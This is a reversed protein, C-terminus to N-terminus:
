CTLTLPQEESVTFGAPVNQGFLADTTASPMLYSIMTYRVCSEAGTGAIPGGKEINAHGDVKMAVVQHTTKSVYVHTRTPANTWLLDYVQEGSDTAEGLYWLIGANLYTNGLYFLKPLATDNLGVGPDSPILPLWSFTQTSQDLHLLRQGSAIDMYPLPGDAGLGYQTRVQCPDATSACPAIWTDERWATDGNPTLAVATYHAVMDQPQVPVISASRNGPAAPMVKYPADMSLSILRLMAQGVAAQSGSTQATVDLALDVGARRQQIAMNKPAAIVRVSRWPAGGIQWSVETSSAIDTYEPLGIRTPAEHLHIMQASGSMSWYIDLVHEDIDADHPGILVNSLTAGDPLYTPLIPKFSLQPAIANVTRRTDALTVNGPAPTATPQQAPFIEKGPLWRFTVLTVSILLLAAIAPIAVAVWRSRQTPRPHTPSSNDPHPMDLRTLRRKIAAGNWASRAAERSTAAANDADVRALIQDLMEPPPATRPLGAFIADIDAYHAITAACADCSAVHEAVESRLPEPLEGDAFASLYPAVDECRMTMDTSM